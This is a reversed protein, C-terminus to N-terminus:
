TKKTEDTELPSFTRRQIDTIMNMAVSRDTEDTKVNPTQNREHKLAQSYVQQAIGFGGQKSVENAIQEAMMGKWYDGAPGKGYVDESDKPMMSQIFTSAISAEFKRYVEPIKSQDHAAGVRATAGHSAGSAASTTSAANLANTIQAAFGTGNAAMQVAQNAAENVKLKERAALVEHPDAAQVVDMVLDSPPSIAM